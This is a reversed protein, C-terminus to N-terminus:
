HAAHLAPGSAAYVNGYLRARPREVRFGSGDISLQAAGDRNDPFFRLAVTSPTARKEVQDLLVVVDPRAFLVMRQVRVVDDDVLRYAPTADSVWWVHDGEDEYQRLRAAAQSENTGEEGNHYQHGRGDILV